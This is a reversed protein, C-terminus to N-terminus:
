ESGSSKSEAATEAPKRTIVADQERLTVTEQYRETTNVRRIRIEEKLLVRREVVVVEEVLPIVILDGEERITPVENVLQRIPVREIEVNEHTLLEDILEERSKTVTSVSVRGTLKTERTVEAQEAHLLVREEREPASATML